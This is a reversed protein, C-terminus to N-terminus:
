PRQGAGSSPDPPVPPNPLPGPDPPPPPPPHGAGVLRTAERELQRRTADYGHQGLAFEDARLAARMPELVPAGALVLLEWNTDTLSLTVAAASSLSKAVAQPSTPIDAAALREVVALAPLGVDAVARVLADGARASRLRDGGDDLGVKRAAVDLAALLDAAPRTLAAAAKTVKDTLVAMEGASARPSANVGFIAQALGVAASWVEHSPLPEVRLTADGPLPKGPDALVARGAHNVAHDTQAAVLLVVLDAITEPLGRPGGPATDILARLDGVTLPRDASRAADLHRDLRQLWENSLMFHSEHMTGLGLANAVNRLAPRKTVEVTIRGDEAHLARTVEAWTTQLHARTVREEFRPHGPYLTTFVQDVLEDLAGALTPATTPRVTLAPHLSRFHETLSQAPDVLPHGPATVGYASLLAAKLQAALQSRRSELIPRAERRQTQSLAATHQEYRTATLLLEDIAVYTRLATLGQTNLFSPLWCVTRSGDHQDTWRDLRELDEEPSRGQDDLPFDILLKPTSGNARLAADPVEATDRLNGFAVDIQRPTGRWLQELTVTADTGLRNGLETDLMQRLKRRRTGANDFARIADAVIAETDVNVLAISVTPNAPDDGVNLEGVHANWNRLKTAVIQTERGPIPSAVSGWNLAVLRAADLNRFADVRDVLAALLVTKILRDDNRFAQWAPTQKWGAPPPDALHHENLLLPRLKTRYLHKATAFTKRLQESFPEDKAAVVDWLDGVPILQGLQLEDRRDVLLQLMVKLATRERQLAESVAILAQVLAPSFPYVTRFLEVDADSTLLTQVVDSRGAIIQDM